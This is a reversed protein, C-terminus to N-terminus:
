SAGYRRRLFVGILVFGVLCGGGILGFYIWWPTPREWTIGPPEPLGFATLTFDSENLVANENVEYAIETEIKNGGLAATLDPPNNGRM